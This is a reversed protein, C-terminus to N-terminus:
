SLKVSCVMTGHVGNKLNWKHRHQTNTLPPEVTKCKLHVAPSKAARASCPTSAVNIGRGAAFQASCNADSEVVGRPLLFSSWSWLRLMTGTPLGEDLIMCQVISFDEGVLMSTEKSIQLPPADIRIFFNLFIVNSGNETPLGTGCVKKSNPLFVYPVLLFIWYFLQVTQGTYAASPIKCSIKNTTSHKLSGTGDLGM